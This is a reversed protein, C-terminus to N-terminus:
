LRRRFDDLTRILVAAAGTLAVVEKGSIPKRAEGEKPEGPANLLLYAVGAGLIAGIVGGIAMYQQLKSGDNM